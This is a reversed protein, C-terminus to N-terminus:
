QLLKDLALEVLYRLEGACQRYVDISCGIPDEIDTGAGAFEALTFVKGQADPAIALVQKKHNGTMTLILDSSRVEEPTLLTPKHNRLDVGQEGMIIIAEESASMGSLAATGASAVEIETERGRKALSKKALVEAMASRCTNGTCVFLIKRAL